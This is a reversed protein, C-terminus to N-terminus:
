FILVRDVTDDNVSKEMFVYKDQGEKLDYKDFVVDIGSYMLREVIECVKEESSWSYSIFVKKPARNNPNNM